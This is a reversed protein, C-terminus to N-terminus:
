TCCLNTHSMLTRCSFWKMVTDRWDWETLSRWRGSSHLRKASLARSFLIVATIIRLLGSIPCFSVPALSNTMQLMFDLNFFFLFFPSPSFLRSEFELFFFAWITIIVECSSWRFHVRKLVKLRWSLQIINYRQISEFWRQAELIKGPLLYM